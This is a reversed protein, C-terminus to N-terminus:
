EKTTEKFENDPGAIKPYKKLFQFLSVAGLIIIVIGMGIVSFRGLLDMSFIAFLQMLFVGISFLVGVLYLRKYDLFYAWLIFVLLPVLGFIVAILYDNGSFRVIDKAILIFLVINAVLLTAAIIIIGLRKKKRKAAFKVIGLRPKTVFAQLLFLPTAFVAYFIFM